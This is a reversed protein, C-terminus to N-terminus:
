RQYSRQKITRIYYLQMGQIKLQIITGPAMRDTTMGTAAPSYGSKSLLMLHPM